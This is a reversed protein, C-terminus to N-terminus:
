STPLPGTRYEERRYTDTGPIRYVLDNIHVPVKPDFFFSCMHAVTAPNGGGNDRMDIIMAKTGALDAM